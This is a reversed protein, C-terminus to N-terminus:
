NYKFEDWWSPDEAIAECTEEVATRISSVQMDVNQSKDLLCANYIRNTKNAAEERAVREREERAVREREKQDLEAKTGLYIDNEWVGTRIAGNAFTTTGQGTRQRDRWEGVHVDGNSWTNTGQGNRQGRKWEGVYVDGNAYTLTGQGTRVGSYESTFEGVYIDGNQFNLTKITQGYVGSALSVLLLSLATTSLLKKMSM